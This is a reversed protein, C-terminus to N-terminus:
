GNLVKELTKCEIKNGFISGGETANIIKCKTRSVWQYFSHRYADFMIDSVCKTGFIPHEITTYAKEITEKSAGSEVFKKMWFGYDETQDDIVRTIGKDTLEYAWDAGVLVIEEYGLYECIGCTTGAVNGQTHIIPLNTMIQLVRDTISDISPIYWYRGSEPKLKRSCTAPLISKSTHDIGKYYTAVLDDADVTVVYHPRFGIDLLRHFARDVCFIDYGEAKPLLHKNKQLSPGASVIIAKKTESQKYPNNKSLENISRPIVFVDTEVAGRANTLMRLYNHSFNTIWKDYMENRATEDIVKLHKPANIFNTFCMYSGRCGAKILMQEFESEEDVSQKEKEEISVGFNSKFSM